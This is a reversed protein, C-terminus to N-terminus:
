ATLSKMWFTMSKSSETTEDLDRWSFSARLEPARRYGRKEWFTDLPRYDAPRRPHDMARDVACFCTCQYRGLARAHAEREEFFRVGIGQGRYEPLLVSEGFYFIDSVKLGAERFPEIVNDTEHSLPLGTSAGVIRDRDWALVVVSDPSETYTGLYREEYAPDGAYLYPFERFVAIRLRALEAIYRSVQNGTHSEVRLSPAM